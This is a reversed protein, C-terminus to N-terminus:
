VETIQQGNFMNNLTRDVVAPYNPEYFQVNVVRVWTGTLGHKCYFSDVVTRNVCVDYCQLM